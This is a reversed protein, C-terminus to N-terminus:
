VQGRKHRKEVLWAPLWGKQELEDLEEETFVEEIPTEVFAVPITEHFVPKNEMAWGKIWWYEAHADALALWAGEPDIKVGFDELHSALLIAFLITDHRFVIIPKSVHAIAEMLAKAKNLGKSGM